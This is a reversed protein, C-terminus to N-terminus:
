REKVAAQSRGRQTTGVVGEAVDGDLLADAWARVNPSTAGAALQLLMVDLPNAHAADLSPLTADTRM